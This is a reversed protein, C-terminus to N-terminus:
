LKQQRGRYTVHELPPGRVFVANGPVGILVNDRFETGVATHGRGHIGSSSRLAMLSRPIRTVRTGTGNALFSRLGPTPDKQGLRSRAYARLYYHNYNDSLRRRVIAETFRKRTGASM